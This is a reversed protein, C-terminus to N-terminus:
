TTLPPCWRRQSSCTAKVHDQFDQATHGPHKQVDNKRLKLTLISNVKVKIQLELCKILTKWNRIHM